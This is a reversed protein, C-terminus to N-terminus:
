GRRTLDSLPITVQRQRWGGTVIVVERGTWGSRISKVVGRTGRHTSSPGTVEVRAGKVIRESM